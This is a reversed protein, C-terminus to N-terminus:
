QLLDDRPHWLRLATAVDPGLRQFALQEVSLWQADTIEIPQLRLQGPTPVAAAFLDYHFSLGHSSFRYPGISRFDAEKLAVGTEEYLERRV